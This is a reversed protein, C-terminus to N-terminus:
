ELGSLKKASTTVLDVVTKRIAEGIDTYSGGGTERRVNRVSPNIGRAELDEMAKRVKELM